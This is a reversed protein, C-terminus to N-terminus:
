FIRSKYIPKNIQYIRFPTSNDSHLPPHPDVFISLGAIKDVKSDNHSTVRIESIYVDDGSDPHNINLKGSSYVGQRNKKNYVPRDVILYAITELFGISLIAKEDSLEESSFISRFFDEFDNRLRGLGVAKEVADFIAKENGWKLNLTEALLDFIWTTHGYNTQTLKSHLTWNCYYNILKWNEKTEEIEIIIRVMAMLAIVDRVTYNDNSRNLFQAIEEKVQIQNM